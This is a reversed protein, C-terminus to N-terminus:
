GTEVDALHNRKLAKVRFSGGLHWHGCYSCAYPHTPYKLHKRAKDAEHKSPHCIKGSQSCQTM